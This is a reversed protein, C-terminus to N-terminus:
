IYYIKYNAEFDKLSSFSSDKLSLIGGQFLKINIFMSTKQKTGLLKWFDLINLLLEKIPDYKM